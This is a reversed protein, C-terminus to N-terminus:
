KGKKKQSGPRKRGSGKDSDAGFLKVRKDLAAKMKKSPKM